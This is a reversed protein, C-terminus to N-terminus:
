RSPVVEGRGAGHSVGMAPRSRCESGILSAEAGDVGRNTVEFTRPRARLVVYSRVPDDIGKIPVPPEESVDFLGRVHRYTTHSVRQRGVPATQEMRAAINVAIGRISSDADVGGGLLVPGTHVGVRVNFDDHGHRARVEAAVRRAAELIALGARVAQEPDDERADTAGFVALLSDGAYQLVRGGHSEVISTFRQLVGDMVAHIAEPDLRQSLRTSEAVDTFLISVPKLQQEPADLRALRARLAALATDVVADGLVARQSELAAIGGELQEREAM